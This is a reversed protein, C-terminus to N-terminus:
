AVVVQVCEMLGDRGFDIIECGADAGRGGESSGVLVTSREFSAKAAAATSLTESSKRSKSIQRRM